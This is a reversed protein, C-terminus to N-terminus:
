KSLLLYIAIGQLILSIMQYAYNIFRFNRKPKIAEKTKPDIVQLKAM